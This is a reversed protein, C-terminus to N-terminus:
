RVAEEGGDRGYSLAAFFLIDGDRDASFSIADTLVTSVLQVEAGSVPDFLVLGPSRDLASRYLIWGRRTPHPLHYNGYGSPSLRLTEDGDATEGAYREMLEATMQYFIGRASFGTVDRIARWPGFFPFKAFQRQIRLLVDDGFHRVMYEVLLYGAVYIRGPPAFPTLHAAQELTFMRGETILSKYYLEFM